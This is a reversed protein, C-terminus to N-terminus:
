RAVDSRLSRVFQEATRGSYGNGWEAFRIAREDLDAVDLEFDEVLGRVIELYRRQSADPFTIALGFRDSLALREHQTDWAHVDDDLPDPRDLLSERVLHRRNSTAYLLANGPPATLSGELLTKLPHYATDGQEFSLDDVFLVYRHPRGRLRELIDPLRDLDSPAIEVLRLGNAHYRPLLARVATSKGSGRPGYLLTHQAPRDALFDRTNETLRDIQRELGVLREMRPMSPHDIGVFVGDAWRFALFRALVGDGNERYHRELRDRVAHADDRTLAAAIARDAGAPDTALHSLPPPEHGTLDTVAQSWDRRAVELLAAVDSAMARRLGSPVDGRMAARSFATSTSLLLDAAAAPLDAYAGDALTALVAAHAREAAPGDRDQLSADLARLQSWWSPPSAFLYLPRM